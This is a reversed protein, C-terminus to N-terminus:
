RRKITKAKKKKGKGRKVKGKSAVSFVNTVADNKIKFLVIM